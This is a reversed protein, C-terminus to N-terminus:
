RGLHVSLIKPETMEEIAYRVGERGFGSDKMGGYPQSDVRFTPVDNVVIGGAEIEEFARWILDMQYTFIGAQLGFRSDNVRNLADSFDDYAHLVVVPGFVEECNVKQDEPCDEVLTPAVMTGQGTGGCVVSAGARRAEEIWSLVRRAEGEDIMPGINVSADLPDGMKLGAIRELYGARFADYLDRHVYIRQLHICIQGQYAYGGVTCKHLAADLEADRHIIAAANGGLELTVKKKGCRRKIDWGVEPSGTFSVKQIRPDEVLPGAQSGSAPLVSFAGKPWDTQAIIEALILASLPTQSAPKLLVPNGVALAPAVKHAVLNIPFNFPTIASVPGIPFRRVIGFRGRNAPVIDLPLYTGEMRTAEESALTFTVIARGVEADAHGICKGAELAITRALEERRAALGDRISRLIDARVCAPLRRAEAFSQQAAVIAAEIAQADPRHVRAVLSQDYPSKVEYTSESAQWQGGLYYRHAQSM